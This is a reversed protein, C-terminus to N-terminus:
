PQAIHQIVIETNELDVWNVNLDSSETVYFCGIKGPGPMTAECHVTGKLMTFMEAGRPAPYLSLCTFDSETLRGERDQRGIEAEPLHCIVLYVPKVDEDQEPILFEENDGHVGLRVHSKNVGVAILRHPGYAPDSVYLAEGVNDEGPPNLTLETPKFVMVLGRADLEMLAEKSIARPILNVIKRTM